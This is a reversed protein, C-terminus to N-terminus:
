ATTGGAGDFFVIVGNVTGSPILQGYTFDVNQVNHCDSLTASTCSMTYTIGHSVYSVWEDGQCTTSSQNTVSGLSLSGGSGAQAPRPAAFLCLVALALAPILPLRTGSTPSPVKAIGQEPQHSSLM